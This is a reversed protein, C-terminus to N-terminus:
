DRQVIEAAVQDVAARAEIADEGDFGHVLIAFTVTRGDPLTTVGALAATGGLYGTKGRIVGRADTVEEDEFRDVLTGSLGGIPVDYLLPELEPASGSAVQGLITAFVVPPVRDQKSLGSGDHISIAALDEEPLGLRSGLVQIEEDVAKAANEPTAEMGKERAVLHALLEALTNDSNVLTHQVIEEITASEISAEKGSEPAEGETIEGDVKVGRDELLDAFVKAADGAPDESKPGYATGDLRGGDIALAATPAVWGGARGNNGWAPNEGGPLATTDLVLEVSGTDEGLNAVTEDALTGLKKKTLTMDGTGVLTVTDDKVVTSTTLTSEPDLVSLAASATLLTLTSAPIRATDPDRSAIVNGDAADVVTFSLNGDVVPDDAYASMREELDLGNDDAPDEAADPALATHETRDYDEGQARPGVPSETVERDLTLVGPFADALDGIGYFSVPVLACLTVAVARWVKESQM